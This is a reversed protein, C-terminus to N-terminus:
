KIPYRTLKARKRGGEDSILLTLDPTFTIGEAQKHVGSRFTVQGLLEGTPSVEVVSEGQAALIFFTSTKPHREIGSPNFLKHRSKHRLERLPLLFRPKKELKMTELSFGYVAKSKAYGKGPYEKCALLLSHTDPDYCLGEVDHALSLRTRYMKYAVYEGDEGESFEYLNGWSTVLFFRGDVIALGEFDARVAIRGLSFSKVIKGTLYDIQYIVGKEDDHAFLRGDETMALGSIERLRNGLNVKSPKKDELDYWLLASSTNLVPPGFVVCCLSLSVGFMYPRVNSRM